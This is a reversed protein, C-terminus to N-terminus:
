RQQGVLARRELRSALLSLPYCVIFYLAALVVYVTFIANPARAVISQSVNMLENYGIITTLSTDKIVGIFLGVLPPLAVIGAQPIVVRRMMQPFSLGLSLAADRQGRHVSELGSRVIEAVYAGTYAVLAIVAAAFADINIGFYPFGFFIFFLQMLLPTGRGINIYVRLIPGVVPVRAFRIVAVVLGVIGGGVIAIASLELTVAFGHLLIGRSEWVVPWDM